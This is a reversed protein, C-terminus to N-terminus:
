SSYKSAYTHHGIISFVNKVVLSTGRLELLLFMMDATAIRAEGKEHFVNASRAERVANREESSDRVIRRPDNILRTECFGSPVKWVVQFLGDLCSLGTHLQIAPRRSELAIVAM